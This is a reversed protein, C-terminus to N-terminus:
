LIHVLETMFSRVHNILDLNQTPTYGNDRPHMTPNRWADKVGYLYSQVASYKEYKRKKAVTDQPMSKLKPNINNLVQDWTLEKVRRGPNPKALDVGLKKGFMQVGNEMVLMLHFVSALHLDLAYCDVSATIDAKLHKLKKLVDSWDSTVKNLLAVKDRKYHFFCTYQIGSEFAERLTRIQISCEHLTLQNQTLKLSFKELRDHV